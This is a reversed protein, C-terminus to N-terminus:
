ALSTKLFGVLCSPTEAYSSYESLFADSWTLKVKRSSSFIEPKEIQADHRLNQLVCQLFDLSFKGRFYSLFEDIKLTERIAEIRPLDPDASGPFITKANAISFLPTISISKALFGIKFLDTLKVNRLNLVPPKGDATKAETSQWILWANFDLSENYLEGAWDLYLGLITELETKDTSSGLGFRSRLINRLFRTGAYYNEISHVNTVYFKDGSKQAIDYDRDVFFTYKANEYVGPNAQIHAHLRMVNAKGDGAVFDIEEGDHLHASVRPRYYSEDDGEVVSIAAANPSGFRKNFELLLYPYDKRIKVAAMM